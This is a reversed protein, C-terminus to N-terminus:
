KFLNFLIERGMCEGMIRTGDAQMWSEGCGSLWDLFVVVVFVCFMVTLTVTVLLGPASKM